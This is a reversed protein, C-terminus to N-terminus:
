QGERPLCSSEGQIEEAVQDIDAEQSVIPPKSEVNQKSDLKPAKSTDQAPEAEPVAAKRKPSATLM